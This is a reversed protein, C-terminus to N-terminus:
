GFVSEILEKMHAAQGDSMPQNNQLLYFDSFLEYPSKTEVAADASIVANRQTRKNDYNLKMLNHYVIRLRGIADPIDDEDTLTIHVYDEQYTTGDYFSKLMLDNYKGKLEVLDRKPKLPVTRVTLEGKDALEVVTVSKTDNAESFSYKLPTGCYRIKQSGCNQPSHLHGLAVYDFDAFVLADVNDSGGVSVDESESRTAGTVFQHTVLVNREAPNVEMKDIVLRLADTYTGVEADENYKRVQVPKLFPLLYFNVPGYADKLTVPAISGKYVPSLHVGGAEMIRSGFAIREASDHNGSIVFIELRRKALGVLFDDFLSVAEAPPISKDYIDGALIVGDPKEQDIVNLIQRLIYEQDELMSYEYVRKGLHLDSLHILKM